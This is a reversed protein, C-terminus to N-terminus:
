LCKDGSLVPKPCVSPRFLVSGTALNHELMASHVSHIIFLVPGQSPIGLSDNLSCLKILMGSSM